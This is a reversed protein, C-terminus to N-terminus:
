KVKVEIRTGESILAAYETLDRGTPSFGLKKLERRLESKITSVPKGSYRKSLSDFM